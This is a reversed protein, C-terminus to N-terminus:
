GEDQVQQEILEGLRKLIRSKAKYVQDVSLGLEAATENADGGEVAYRQFAARDAANFEAEIVRMAQRLHYQRWEAEWQEDVAADTCAAAATKEIDELNVQGRKQFSKRYIAHLTITKLYGRFRGKAPDYEFGPMAKTLALVVDQVVDECDAAQLGQPRAFNRILEGYRDYFESWAAPDAGDSLRALLTAHTTTHTQVDGIPWPAHASAPTASEKGSRTYHNASAPSLRPVPMKGTVHGM